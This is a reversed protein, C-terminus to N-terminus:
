DYKGPVRKVPKQRRYVLVDFLELCLNVKHLLGDRLPNGNDLLEDLLRQIYGSNGRVPPKNMERRLDPIQFDTVPFNRAV